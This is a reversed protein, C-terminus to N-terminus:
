ETLLAPDIAVDLTTDQYVYELFRKAQEDDQARRNAWEKVTKKLTGNSYGNQLVKEFAEAVEWEYDFLGMMARMAKTAALTDNPEEHYFRGLFMSVIYLPDKNQNM